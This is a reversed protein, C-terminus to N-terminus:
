LYFLYGLHSARVHHLKYHLKSSNRAMVANTGEHTLVINVTPHLDTLTPILEILDVVKGSSLCYTIAGPLSLYRIDSDDTILSEPNSSVVGSNYVALKPPLQCAASALNAPGADTDSTSPRDLPAAVLDPPSPRTSPSSM